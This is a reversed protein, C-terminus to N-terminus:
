KLFNIVSLNKSFCKQEIVDHYMPNVAVIVGDLSECDEQTLEDFRKVPIGYINDNGQFRGTDDIGFVISYKKLDSYVYMLSSIEGLGYVAYKKNQYSASAIKGFIGEWKKLTEEVTTQKYSYSVHKSAFFDQQFLHLSFNHAFWPSLQTNIQKLGCRKGYMDFHDTHFHHLHDAFFIDYSEVNQMPQIILLYGSETLHESLTQMFHFPSPVHEIVTVALILDYKGQISSYDGQVLQIGKQKALQVASKTLECGRLDAHPLMKQLETLLNGQGAGVEFVTQISNLAGDKLNLSNCIWDTTAKSRSIYLGDKYFYHDTDTNNGHLSYAETYHRDLEEYSFTNGERALGCRQCIIKNLPRKIYRKDSTMSEFFHTGTVTRSESSGCLDCFLPEYTNM